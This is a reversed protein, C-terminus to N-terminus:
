WACYLYIYHWATWWYGSEVTAEVGNPLVLVMETIWGWRQAWSPYVYTEHGVMQPYLGYASWDPCSFQNVVTEGPPVIQTPANIVRCNPAADCEERSMAQAVPYQEVPDTIMDSASVAHQMGLILTLVVGFSLLIRQQSFLRLSNRRM